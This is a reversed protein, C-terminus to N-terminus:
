QRNLRGLGRAAFARVQEDPDALLGRLIPEAAQDRLGGLCWGLIMRVHPVSDQALPSLTVLAGPRAWFAVVSVARSRVMPDPDDLLSRAKEDVRAADPQNALAELATM